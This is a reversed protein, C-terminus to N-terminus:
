LKRLGGLPTSQTGLMITDQTTKSAWNQYNIVATAPVGVLQLLTQQLTSLLQNMTDMQRKANDTVTAMRNDMSIQGEKLSTTVKEQTTLAGKIFNTLDSIFTDTSKQVTLIKDMFATNENDRNKNTLQISDNFEKRLFALDQSIQSITDSSATTETADKTLDIREIPPSITTSEDIKDM